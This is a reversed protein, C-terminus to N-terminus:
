EAVSARQLFQEVAPADPAGLVGEASSVVSAATANAFRLAEPLAVNQRLRYMLGANFADGAGVTTHVDVDFGPITEPSRHPAHLDAGDAGRKVIVRQAGAQLVARAAEYLDPHGSCTRLEYANTLLYTVDPLLPALEDLTPPDDIAPGIDLLTTTGADCAQRLAQAMGGPRWGRLLQYGTVLLLDAQAFYAETVDDRAFTATAGAHHFSQRNNNEDSIVVTTATADTDSRILEDTRVGTEDLWKEVVSGFVDRGIASCLSPASGLQGLVYATNAGNGGLTVTTPASCFAFNDSTFEDGDPVPMHDLGSLFLDVTTTGLVIIM